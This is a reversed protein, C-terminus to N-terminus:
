LGMPVTVKTTDWALTMNVVNANKALSINFQELSPTQTEVPVVVQLADAAPERSAVGGGKIGWMYQDKNWIITWKDKEPITWLSYKGAPLKNGGITLDKDTVFVTNENAGTRWVKGFPVLGGFIERGKKFPRSYVVSFKVTSGNITEALEVTQEPSNKKTNSKIYPFVVFTILLGLVVLIGVAWKLFKIM